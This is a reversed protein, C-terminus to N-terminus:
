CLRLDEEEDTTIAELMERYESIATDYDGARIANVAPTLHKTYLREFIAPEKRSRSRLKDALAPSAIYYEEVLM